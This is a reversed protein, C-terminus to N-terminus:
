AQTLEIQYLGDENFPQIDRHYMIQHWGDADKKFTFTFRQQIKEPPHGKRQFSETIVGWAIGIDGESWTHIETPETNYYEMVEFFKTVRETMAETSLNQGRWGYTRWGFGAIVSAEGAVVAEADRSNIPEGGKRIIEAIEENEISM